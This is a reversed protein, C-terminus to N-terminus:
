KKEKFEKPSLINKDKPYHKKNGTIIYNANSSKLVDYFIKDDEDTFVVEQTEALIYEGNTKIFELFDNVL